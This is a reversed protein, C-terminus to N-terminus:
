MYYRFTRSHLRAATELVCCAGDTTGVSVVRCPDSLHVCERACVTPLSAYVEATGRPRNRDDRFLTAVGQRQSSYISFGNPWAGLKDGVLRM